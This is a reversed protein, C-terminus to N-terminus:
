IQNYGLSAPKGKEGEKVPGPLDKKDEIRYGSPPAAKKAASGAREAANGIGPRPLDKMNGIMKGSPVAKEVISHRWEESMNAMIALAAEETDAYGESMLHGKVIDFLDVDQKLTGRQRALERIKADSAATDPTGGGATIPKDGLLANSAKRLAGKIAFGVPDTLNRQLNKAGQEASTRPNALLAGGLRAAGVSLGMGEDVLEGEAEYHAMVNKKKGHGGHSESVLIEMESTPVAREVGHEFMVDYHSVFGSEDPEAHEGFICTGQGFQEHCVKKACNHEGKESKPVCDEEKEEKKEKKGYGEQIAAYAEGLLRLEKSNM